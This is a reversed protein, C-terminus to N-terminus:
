RPRQGFATTAAGWTGVLPLGDVDFTQGYGCAWETDPVGIPDMLRNKLLSRIDKDPGKLIARTVCYALMAIGPNSYQYKTGPEFIVPIHDRSVTFPDEPVDRREWFVGKWGPEDTHSFGAVSSDDLGSTHTALHAITMKSKLLDSRWEPVYKSALDEFRMFGDQIAFLLSM